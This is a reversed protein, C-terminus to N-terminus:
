KAFPSNSNAFNGNHQKKRMMEETTITQHTLADLAERLLWGNTGASHATIKDLILRKTQVAGVRDCCSIAIVAKDMEEPTKWNALKLIQRYEDDKDVATIISQIVGTHHKSAKDLAEAIQGDQRQLDKLNLTVGEFVKEKIIETPTKHGNNGTNITM